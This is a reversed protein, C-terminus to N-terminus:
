ERTKLVEVLDLRNLRRRVLVASAIAAAVVIVQAFAYTRPTVVVPMRFLEWQYQRAILACIQYGILCGLPLAALTLIAQEGFLLVAVERRTLGLVRLSALERGRESLAIRATNYVVAVAVVCAFGVLVFTFIGMSRALTDEFSKLAVSRIAVGAVAPTRKLDSYLEAARREEVALFAGSVTASERMLRQLARHDMYANLGILEDVLGSVQVARVPRSGELVEVTLMDGPAVALIEALRTTLLVGESPVEVARLDSDMLRYLEAGPPRGTLGVRRTRHGARLRAPVARFPEARLVGPLHALAFRAREPLPEHFTLTVDDRQILRFQVDAIYGIADVFYRGVVLIAVAMAIGLVAAGARAPRRVLNRLIMRGPASLVRQVGARELLGAHFRPPPEPRMAEAPPLALARRV